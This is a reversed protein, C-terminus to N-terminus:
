PMSAYYGSGGDPDAVWPRFNNTAREYAIGYYLTEGSLTAFDYRETNEFRPLLSEATAESKFKRGFAIYTLFGQEDYSSVTVVDHPEFEGSDDYYKRVIYDNSMAKLYSSDSGSFLGGGDVSQLGSYATVGERDVASLGMDIEKSDASTAGNAAFWGIFIISNVDISADPDATFIINKASYDFTVACNSFLDSNPELQFDEMRLTGGKNSRLRFIPTTDSGNPTFDVAYEFTIYDTLNRVAMTQDHVIITLTGGSARASMTYAGEVVDNISFDVPDPLEVSQSPEESETPEPEVDAPETQSPTSPRETPSPPAASTTGNNAAPSNGGGDCAALSLALVFMLFVAIPKKM